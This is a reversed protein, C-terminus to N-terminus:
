LQKPFQLINILSSKYKSAIEQQKVCSHDSLLGTKVLLWSVCVLLDPIIENWFLVLPLDTMSNHTVVKIGLQCGGKIKRQNIEFKKHM